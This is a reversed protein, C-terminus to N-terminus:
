DDDDSLVLEKLGDGNLDALKVVASGSQGSSLSFTLEVGKKITPKTIFKDEENM